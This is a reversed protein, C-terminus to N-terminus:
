IFFEETVSFDGLAVRISFSEGPEGSFQFEISESNGAEAQLVSKGQEDLVMLQLESPLYPQSGIPYVEVTIDLEPSPTPALGVFVAVQEIGAQGELDLRKGRKVGDVPIEPMTTTGPSLSRTSFALEAQPPVFIAEVTEWTTEIVNQLWQSLNVREKVPQIQTFQNLYVPLEELSRLESLPLEQVSVREAFGLLTAEEMSEDIQVAVYGLRGEWVEEPVQVVDSEPEVPRCELKGCNKVQLDAVNLFTQMMSDWSDSKEWDTEFGLCQLHYNVAYVALTNLYLQEAKQLNSQNQCFREALQHASHTLSVTVTTIPEQTYITM